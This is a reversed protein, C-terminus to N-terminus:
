FEFAHDVEDRHLGVEEVVFGQTCVPFFCINRGVQEFLAFFHTGFQEFLEGCNIFVIFVEHCFHKSFGSEKVASSIWAAMRLPTQAFLNLGTRHPDAKLFLPTCCSRSATTLQIGEGSSRPSMLACSRSYLHLFRRSVQHHHM